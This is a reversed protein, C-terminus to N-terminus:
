IVVFDFEVSKHPIPDVTAYWAIFVLKNRKGGDELEYEV